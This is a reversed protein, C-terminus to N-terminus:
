IGQASTKITLVSSKGMPVISYDITVGLINRDADQEDSLFSMGNVQIFPMYKKVQQNVRRVIRSNTDPTLPEFLYSRLGIGFKTDMMREGQTTMLLNKFNQKVVEEITINNAYTGFTPDFYLPFKPSLGRM